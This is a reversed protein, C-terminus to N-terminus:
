IGLRERLDKTQQKLAGVAIQKQLRKERRNADLAKDLDTKKEERRRIIEECVWPDRHVVALYAAKLPVVLPGGCYVCEVKVGHYPHWSCKM